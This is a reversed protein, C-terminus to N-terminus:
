REYTIKGKTHPQTLVFHLLARCGEISVPSHMIRKRGAYAGKYYPKLTDDHCFRKRTIDKIINLEYPANTLKLNNYNELIRQDTYGWNQKLENVIKSTITDSNMVKFKFLCLRRASSFLHEYELKKKIKEVKSAVNVEPNDILEHSLYCEIVFKSWSDDSTDIPAYDYAETVVVGDSNISELINKWNHILPGWLISCYENKELDNKM